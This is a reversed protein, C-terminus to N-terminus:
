KLYGNKKLDLIADPLKDKLIVIDVYNPDSQDGLPVIHIYETGMMNWTETETEINDIIAKKLRDGLDPSILFRDHNSLIADFKLKEIRELAHFYVSLDTWDGYTYLLRRAIADGTILTSTKKDLFVLSGRTHGPVNYVKVKRNGLDIVGGDKLLKVKFQPAGFNRFQNRLLATDAPHIYIVDFQNNNGIHDIHGHSNVVMLPLDTISRVYDAFGEKPISTDILLAKESGVILQANQTPTGKEALGGWAMNSIVYLGDDAKIHFFGNKDPIIKEQAHISFAFLIVFSVMVIRKM